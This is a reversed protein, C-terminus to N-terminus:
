QWQGYYVYGPYQICIHGPRRFCPMHACVVGWWMVPWLEATFGFIQMRYSKSFLWNFIYYTNYIDPGCSIMMFFNDAMFIKFLLCNWIGVFGTKVPGTVYVTLGLISSTSPCYPMKWRPIRYQSFVRTYPIERYGPM